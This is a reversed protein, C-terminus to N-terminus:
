FRKCTQNGWQDVWQYTGTPCGKSTDYFQRPSNFSKCTRTGWSDVWPHTGTPCNDISGQITAPPGGGFRQCIQNGWKDVSPFSGTPCAAFATSPLGLLALLAAILKGRM